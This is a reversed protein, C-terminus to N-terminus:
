SMRVTISVSASTPVTSSSRGRQAVDIIVAKMRTSPWGTPTIALLELEGDPPAMSLAPASLAERKMCSQSAKSMGIRDSISVGPLMTPGTASFVASIRCQARM